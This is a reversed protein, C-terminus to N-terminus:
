VACGVHGFATRDWVGCKPCGVSIGPNQCSALSILTKGVQSSALVSLSNGMGVSTPFALGCRHPTEAQSKIYYWKRLEEERM